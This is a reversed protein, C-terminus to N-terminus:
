SENEVMSGGGDVPSVGPDVGNELDEPDDVEDVNEVADEKDDEGNSCPRLDPGM